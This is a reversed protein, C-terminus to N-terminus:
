PLPTQELRYGIGWVTLLYAPAAQDPELKRRLRRIHVTVTDLDGFDYGWVDALLRERSLVTGPNAVFYALLDFERPTLRLLRGRVRAIRQVVDVSVDGAHRTERAPVLRQSRRLVASLMAVVEAPAGTRAVHDAGDHLLAIRAAATIGDALVVVADQRALRSLCVQLQGAGTRLDGVVLAAPGLLAAARRLAAVDPVVTVTAGAAELVERARRRDAEPVALLM